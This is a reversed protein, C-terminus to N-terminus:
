GPWMVHELLRHSPHFDNIVFSFFLSFLSPLRWKILIEFFFPSLIVIALQTPVIMKWWHGSLLPTREGIRRSWRGFRHNVRELWNPILNRAVASILIGVVILSVTHTPESSGVSSFALLRELTISFMYPLNRQQLIHQRQQGKGLRVPLM